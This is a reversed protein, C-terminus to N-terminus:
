NGEARKAEEWFVDMEALSMDQLRRGIQAARGEIYAFRRRFRQSTLRLASESDVGYWRALNVAAFLLDGCEREIEDDNKSRSIEELEELLKERVPTIDEWDFGVRAARAQIDQAQALAPLNLPVSDLVGKKNEGDQNAERESAKIEEWNRLVM